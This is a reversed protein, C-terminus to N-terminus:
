TVTDIKRLTPPLIPGTHARDAGPVLPPLHLVLQVRLKRGRSRAGAETDMVAALRAEFPYTEKVSGAGAALAMGHTFHAFNEYFTVM